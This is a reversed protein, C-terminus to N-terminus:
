GSSLSRISWTIALQWPPERHPSQSVKRGHRYSYMSWDVSAHFSRRLHCKIVAEEARERSIISALSRRLYPFFFLNKGSGWYRRPTDMGGLLRRVIYQQQFAVVVHHSVLRHLRAAKNKVQGKACSPGTFRSVEWGTFRSVERQVAPAM